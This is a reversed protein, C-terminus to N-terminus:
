LKLKIEQQIIFREEWLKILFYLPMSLLIEVLSEPWIQISQGLIFLDVIKFIILSTTVLSLAVLIHDGLRSRAVIQAGSSLILFVLSYVGLHTNTLFSLLLGASMALYLNEKEPRLFNKLILIMLCLNVPLVSAQLFIILTLILLLTKM